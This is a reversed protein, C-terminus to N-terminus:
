AAELTQTRCTHCTRVQLLVEKNCGSDQIDQIHAVVAPVQGHPATERALPVVSALLTGSDHNPRGAPGATGSAAKSEAQLDRNSVAFVGEEHVPHVVGGDLTLQSGSSMDLQMYQQLTGRSLGPQRAQEGKGGHRV